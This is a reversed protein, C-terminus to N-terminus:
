PPLVLTSCAPIRHHQCYKSIAWLLLKLDEQSWNRKLRKNKLM